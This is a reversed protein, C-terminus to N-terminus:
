RLAKTGGEGTQEYPLFDEVMPIWLISYCDEPTVMMEGIALYFTNTDNHWRDALSTLSGRNITYRPMDLLSSLGCREIIDREAQTLRPILGWPKLFRERSQLVGLITQM